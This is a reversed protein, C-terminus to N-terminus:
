LRPGDRKTVDTCPEALLHDGPKMFAAPLSLCFHYLLLFLIWWVQSFGKLRARYLTSLPLSSAIHPFCLVDALPLGDCRSTQSCVKEDDNKMAAVDKILSMFTWPHGWSRSRSGSGGDRRDLSMCKRDCNCFCCMFAIYEAAQLGEGFAAREAAFIGKVELIDGYLAFLM